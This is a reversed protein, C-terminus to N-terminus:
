LSARIFTARKASDPGRPLVECQIKGETESTFKVIGTSNTSRLLILTNSYDSKITEM